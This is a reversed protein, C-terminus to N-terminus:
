SVGGIRTSRLTDSYPVLPLPPILMPSLMEQLRDLTSSPPLRGDLRSIRRLEFGCRELNVNFMARLLYVLGGRGDQAFLPGLSYRAIM